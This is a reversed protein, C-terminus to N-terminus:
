PKFIREWIVNCPTTHTEGREGKEETRPQEVIMSEMVGVERRSSGTRM